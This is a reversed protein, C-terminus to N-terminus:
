TLFQLFEELENRCISCFNRCIKSSLELVGLRCFQLFVLIGNRINYLLSETVRVEM